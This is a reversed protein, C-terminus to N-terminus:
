KINLYNIADNLAEKVFYGSSLKDSMAAVNRKMEEYESPQLEALRTNLEALSNVSIGIKHQEVFPALAAKDWIIIPLGCRIYFSTKHPNNYRLYDGFNGTCADVSEGDWVLGFDGDCEAIMQESAVFGGYNIAGSTNHSHDFGNGYVNFTYNSNLGSEGITYLFANKRPHLGGAYVVKYPSHPKRGKATAESLYDFIGLEGVKCAIGNDELWKRMAANHAVIYDAHNLRSIEKAVTLKQRRFSGLDHIVAVVKAGRLHAIRCLTAFYKKFPYQLVLIDGRNLSFLTKAVSCFTYIFGAAANRLQKQPLGVNCYGAQALICEIDTKAKNGASTLDKYNKSVYALM